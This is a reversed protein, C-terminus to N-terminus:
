IITRQTTAVLELAGRYWLSDSYPLLLVTQPWSKVTRRQKRRWILNILQPKHQLNTQDHCLLPEMDMFRIYLLVCSQFSPWSCCFLLHCGNEDLIAVYKFIFIVKHRDIMNVCWSQFRQGDYHKKDPKIKQMRELHSTHTAVWSRSTRLFSTIRLGVNGGESGPWWVALYTINYHVMVVIQLLLCSLLASAPVYSYFQYLRLSTAEGHLKTVSTIHTHVQWCDSAIRRWCHALKNTRASTHTHTHKESLDGCSSPPVGLVAAGRQESSSLSSSKKEEKWREVEKARRWM